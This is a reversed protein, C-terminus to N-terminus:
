GERAFLSPVRERLVSARLRLTSLLALVVVALWCSPVVMDLEMGGLLLYVSGHRTGYGLSAPLPSIYTLFFARASGAVLLQVEFGDWQTVDFNAGDSNLLGSMLEAFYRRGSPRIFDFVRINAAPDPRVNDTYVFSARNETSVNKLYIEELSGTYWCTGEV